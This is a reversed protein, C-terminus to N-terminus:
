ISGCRSGGRGLAARTRPSGAARADSVVFAQALALDGMHSLSVEVVAVGRRSALAEVEGSLQVIPRGLPENLIEVDQWRMRAALGTGLAKLVAEKAAFRAALQRPMTRPEGASAVETPTFVEELAGPHESILRAVRRVSVADIGVGFRLDALRPSPRV